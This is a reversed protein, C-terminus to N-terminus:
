AVKKVVFWLVGVALMVTLWTPLSGGGMNISGIRFGSENSANVGSPAAAGGGANIPMSGNNTLGPIEMM